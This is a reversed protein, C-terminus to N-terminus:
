FLGSITFHFKDPSEGQRRDLKQGWEFRLVGIPTIIRVGGGASNRLEFFGPKKEGLLEYQVSESTINGADYFIVGRMNSTPGKKLPFLLELNFIRQFIGGGQLKRIEQPNLGRTREDIIDVERQGNEAIVTRLKQHPLAESGSYPGSIQGFDHGRVTSIGGLRYRDESPIESHGIKELFGIRTQAMLILTRNDNLSWFHKYRFNYERSQTNGGLVDGGTQIVTFSTNIGSSPFTPHNQTNYGLSPAISRKFINSRERTFLRDVTSFRTSFRLRRYVPFGGSISFSNEIRDEEPRLTSLINQHSLAISSSIQSGLLRPEIFTLSFDTQAGESASPAFQTNLRLTQGRGFLNAKSFSFGGSFQSLESFGLQASFTGTQTEKLSAIIDLINDEDEVAEKSLRFGPEFFGLGELNEQSNKLKKGNYLEGEKVEFERRIVYDRTEVNGSFEIRGIYAKENKIIEYTVSVTRNNENIKTRPIVRVFAYGQEQYVENLAARDQNQLFPNYVNGEKLKLLELLEEKNNLLDGSIDIKGTFYQKGEKINLFVKLRSYEPNHFLIVKPKDIFVKIYGETLYNQAILALDQNVREEQFIGSETAWSFCDIEASTIFRKIDLETFLQNGSVYINTLFVKPTEEIKFDVIYKKESLEEIEASVRTQSYGKKRYMDRITTEDESIKVPDYIDNVETKLKETIEDESLIQRGSIRIDQVRPRETVVFRLLYGDAEPEAEVEVNLFLGMQYIMKIDRIIRRKDLLQGIQSELKFLIQSTELESTGQVEIETIISKQSYVQPVAVFLLLLSFMLNRFLQKWYLLNM